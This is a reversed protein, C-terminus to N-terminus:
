NQLQVVPVIVRVCVRKHVWAVKTTDKEEEERKRSRRQVLAPAKRRTDGLEDGKEVSPLTSPRAHVATAALLTVGVVIKMM